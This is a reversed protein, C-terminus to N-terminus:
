TECRGAGVGRPAGGETEGVGGNRRERGGLRSVQRGGLTTTGRVQGGRLPGTTGTFGRPTGTRLYVGTRGSQIGVDGERVVRGETRGRSTPGGTLGM